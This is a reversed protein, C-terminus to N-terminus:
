NWNGTWTYFVHSGIVISEHTSKHRAWRPQDIRTAHYFVAGDTPDEEYDWYVSDAVSQAILWADHNTPRDSRGDETWSFKGPQWVVECVTDPWYDNHVRNMTVQAVAIQGLIGEGRAEHYVNLALCERERTGANAVQVASYGVGLMMAATIATSLINKM